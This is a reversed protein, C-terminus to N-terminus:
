SCRSLPPDPRRSSQRARGEEIRTRAATKGYSFTGAYCPNKLMQRIRGSSPVGWIVQRQVAPLNNLVADANHVLVAAFIVVSGIALVLVGGAAVDKTIRAKEDFQQIAKTYQAASKVSARPKALKAKQALTSPVFLSANLLLALTLLQALKKM